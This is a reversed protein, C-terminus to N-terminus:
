APSLQWGRAHKGNVQERDRKAGKGLFSATLKGPM